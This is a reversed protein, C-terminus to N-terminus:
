GVLIRSLVYAVPAAVAVPMAGATTLRPARVRRVFAISAAAVAAAVVGVLLGAGVTLDTLLAFVLGVLAGGAVAVASRALPSLPALETLAPLAAALAAVAVLAAEAGTGGAPLFLSSLVVLVVLTGTATLSPTLRTRDPRRALQHVITGLMAVALIGAVPSLPEPDDRVVLTADTAIAAAAALAIGGIAGPVALASHWRSILLGQVALVAVLLVVEGAYAGAVLAAALALTLAAAPM